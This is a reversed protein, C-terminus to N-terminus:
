IKLGKIMEIKEINEFGKDNIEKLKDTEEKLQENKMTLKNLQKDHAVKRKRLNAIQLKLEDIKLNTENISKIM